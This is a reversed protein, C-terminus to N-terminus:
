PCREAAGPRDLVPELHLYDGYSMADKFDMRAGGEGPDYAKGTM